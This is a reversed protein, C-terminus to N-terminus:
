CFSLCGTRQLVSLFSLNSLLLVSHILLPPCNLSQNLQTWEICHLETSNLETSILATWNFAATWNWETQTNLTTLVTQATFNMFNLSLKGLLAIWHCGSLPCNLWDVQLPTKLWFLHTSSALSLESFFLYTFHTAKNILLGWLYCNCRSILLMM